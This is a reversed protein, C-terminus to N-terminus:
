DPERLSELYTILREKEDESLRAFFLPPMLRISEDGLGIRNVALAIEASRNPMVDLDVNFRARSITQDLASNHCQACARRFLAEGTLGAPYIMRGAQRLVNEETADVSRPDSIDDLTGALFQSYESQMSQLRGAEATAIISARHPFLESVGDDLSEEALREVSAAVRRSHSSSYIIEDLDQTRGDPIFQGDTSRECDDQVDDSELTDNGDTGEPTNRLVIRQLDAPNADFLRDLSTAAYAPSDAHTSQVIQRAEIGAPLSRRAWGFWPAFVARMRLNHRTGPGRNQHCQRCDLITNKLSDSEYVSLQAWDQEAAPGFHDANRCGQESQECELEYRFLYFSFNNPDDIPRNTNRCIVEVYGNEGRAYATICYRDDPFHDTPFLIVRPTLATVELSTLGATTLNVAMMGGPTGLASFLDALSTPRTSSNCFQEVFINDNGLTTTQECAQRFSDEGAPLRQILGQLTDAPQMPPEGVSGDNTRNPTTADESLAPNSGADSGSPSPDGPEVSLPGFEGTCSLAVAALGALATASVQRRGHRQDLPRDKWSVPGRRLTTPDLAETRPYASGLVEVTVATATSRAGSAGRRLM